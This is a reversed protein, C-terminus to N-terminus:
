FALTTADDATSMGAFDRDIYDVARVSTVKVPRIPQAVEAKRGCSALSCAAVFLCFYPKCM